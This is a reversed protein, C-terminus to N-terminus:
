IDSETLRKFFAAIHPVKLIEDMMASDQKILISSTMVSYLIKCARIFNAWDAKSYKCLATLFIRIDKNTSLKRLALIINPQEVSTPADLLKDLNSM